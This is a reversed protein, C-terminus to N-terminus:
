TRRGNEFAFGRMFSFSINRGFLRVLAWYHVGSKRLFLGAEVEDVKAVMMPLLFAPRLQYQDGNKLAIRRIKIKQRQSVYHGNM